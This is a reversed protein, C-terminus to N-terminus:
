TDGGSPAPPDPVPPDPEPPPPWLIDAQAQTALGLEVIEAKNDPDVIFELFRAPNNQVRDRVPAPFADFTRQAEKVKNLASQYDDVNTFDGYLPNNLDLRPFDGTRVYKAMIKNVDTEDQFSPKVRTPKTFHKQM